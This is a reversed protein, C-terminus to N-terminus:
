PYRFKTLARGQFESAAEGIKRAGMRRYFDDAHPDSTFTFAPSESAVQQFLRRGIGMGIYEPLVWLHELVDGAAARELAAFAIADDAEDVAACVSHAAIYGATVSLFIPRWREIQTASYGWHAKARCAIESLREAEDPRAARLRIRM